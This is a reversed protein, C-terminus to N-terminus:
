CVSCAFCVSAPRPDNANCNWCNCSVTSVAHVQELSANAASMDIKSM